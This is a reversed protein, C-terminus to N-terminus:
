RWGGGAVPKGAAFWGPAVPEPELMGLRVVEPLHVELAVEGSSCASTVGQGDEVVVGAEGDEQLGAGVLARFRHPFAEGGGEAEVAQGDAHEHVVAGRPAVVGLVRAGGSVTQSM